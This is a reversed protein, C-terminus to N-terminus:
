ISKLHLRNKIMTYFLFWVKSYVGNFEARQHESCTCTHRKRLESGDEEKNSVFFTPNISRMNLSTRSQLMYPLIPLLTASVLQLHFTCIWVIGRQSLCKIRYPCFSHVSFSLFVYFSCKSGASPLGTCLLKHENVAGGNFYLTWDQLLFAYKHANLFYIKLDLSCVKLTLVEYVTM